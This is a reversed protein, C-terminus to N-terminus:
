AGLAWGGRSWVWTNDYNNVGGFLVVQATSPDDAVTFGIGSIPGRPIPTPAATPGPSRPPAQAPPRQATSIAVGAIAAIAVVAVLVTSPRVAIGDAEQSGLQDERLEDDWDGRACDDFSRM